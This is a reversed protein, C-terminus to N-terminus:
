QPTQKVIWSGGQNLVPDPIPPTKGTIEQIGWAAGAMTLRSFRDENLLEDLPELAAQIKLRGAAKCMEFQASRQYGEQDKLVM